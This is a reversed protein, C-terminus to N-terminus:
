AFRERKRVELFLDLNDIFLDILYPDFMRGREKKM